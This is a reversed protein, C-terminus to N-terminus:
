SVRYIFDGYGLGVNFYYEMNVSDPLKDSINWLIRYCPKKMQGKIVRDRCSFEFSANKDFKIRPEVLANIIPDPDVIGGSRIYNSVSVGMGM